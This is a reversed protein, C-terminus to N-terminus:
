MNGVYKCVAYMSVHKLCVQMSGTYKSVGQM